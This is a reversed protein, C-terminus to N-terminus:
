SSEQQFTKQFSLNDFAGAIVKIDPLDFQDIIKNLEKSLSDINTKNYQVTRVIDTLYDTKLNISSEKPLLYDYDPNNKRNLNNIM